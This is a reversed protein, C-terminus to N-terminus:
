PVVGDVVGPVGHLEVVDLIQAGLEQSGSLIELVFLYLKRRLQGNELQGVGVRLAM